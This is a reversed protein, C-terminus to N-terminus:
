KVPRIEGSAIIKDLRRLMWRKWGSKPEEPFDYFLDEEQEVDLRLYEEAICYNLDKGTNLSEIVETWGKFCGVTGCEFGNRKMEEPEPVTYVGPKELTTAMNCAEEPLNEIFRRLMKLRRITLSGQKLKM